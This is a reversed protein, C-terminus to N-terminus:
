QSGIYAQVLPRRGGPATETNMPHVSHVRAIAGSAMIVASYQTGFFSAVLSKAIVKEIRLRNKFNKVASYLIFIEL